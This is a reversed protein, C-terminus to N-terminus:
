IGIGGLKIMFSLGASFSIFRPRWGTLARHFGPNM